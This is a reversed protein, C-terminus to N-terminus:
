RSSVASYPAWVKARDGLARVARREALEIMGPGDSADTPMTATGISADLTALSPDAGASLEKDLGESLRRAAVLAGAVPTDPMVVAFGTTAFRYVSDEQRVVRSLAQAVRCIMVDASNDPVKDFGSVSVTAISLPRAHRRSRSTESSLSNMLEHRNLLGTLRDRHSVDSPGEKLVDLSALVRSLFTGSREVQTWSLSGAIAREDVVERLADMHIEAVRAAGPTAFQWVRFLERCAEALVSDDGTELYSSLYDDYSDVKENWSTSM